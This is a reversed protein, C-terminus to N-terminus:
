GAGGIRCSISPFQTRAASRRAPPPVPHGWACIDFGAPRRAFREISSGVIKSVLWDRREALRSMVDSAVGLAHENFVGEGIRHAKEM